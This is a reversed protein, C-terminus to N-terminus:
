KKPLSALHARYCKLFVVLHDGEAKLSNLEEVDLSFPISRRKAERWSAIAADIRNIEYSREDSTMEQILM